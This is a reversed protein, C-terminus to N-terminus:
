PQQDPLEEFLASGVRVLTAGEEIGVEFDGSMGMSLEPLTQEPQLAILEDRLNRLGHFVPRAAEPDGELPAMTMLGRFEIHSMTVLESWAARLDDPSWGDKSVEGSVNVELLCAITRQQKLADAQLQRALRLSDVSHILSTVPLVIAAKNRQLHGILHWRIDAPLEAARAALQQPRSEGFDRVGLDYLGRISALDTYKTVAVLTIDGPSRNARACAAQMRAHVESLHKQLSNLDSM